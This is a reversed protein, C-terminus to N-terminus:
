LTTKNNTNKTEDTYAMDNKSLEFIDTVQISDGAQAAGFLGFHPHHHPHPHRHPIPHYHPYPPCPPPYLWPSCSETAAMLPLTLAAIKVTKKLSKVPSFQNSAFIKM